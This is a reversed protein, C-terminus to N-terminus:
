QNRWPLQTSLAELTRQELLEIRPQREDCGLNTALSEM